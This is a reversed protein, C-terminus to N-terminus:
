QFRSFDSQREALTSGRDLSPGLSQHFINPLSPKTIDLNKELCIAILINLIDNM